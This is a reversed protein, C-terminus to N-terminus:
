LFGFLVNNYSFINSNWCWLILSKYEKITKIIFIINIMILGISILNM